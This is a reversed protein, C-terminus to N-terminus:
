LSPIEKALRDCYADAEIKRPRNAEFGERWLIGYGKSAQQDKEMMQDYLTGLSLLQKTYAKRQDLIAELQDAKAFVKDQLDDEKKREALLEEYGSRVTDILADRDHSKMESSGLKSVAKRVDTTVDIRRTLQENFEVILATLEDFQLLFTDITKSRTKVIKSHKDLLKLEEDNKQIIEDKAKLELEKVRVEEQVRKLKEQLHQTIPAMMEEIAKKSGATNYVIQILQEPNSRNRVTLM